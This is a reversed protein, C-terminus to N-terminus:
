FLCDQLVQKHVIPEFPKYYPNSYEHGDEDKYWYGFLSITGDKSLFALRNGRIDSEILHCIAKNKLFNKPLVNLIENVFNQTDSMNRTDPIYASLIGNHMVALDCEGELANKKRIPFPHCTMGDVNGHTRIRMHILVPINNWDRNHIFDLLDDITMFGKQFHVKNDETWMVGAGDPNHSFLYKLKSDNFMAQEPHKVAIICM